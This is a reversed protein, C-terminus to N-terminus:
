CNVPGRAFGGGGAAKQGPLGGGRELSKCVGRLVYCKNQQHHCRASGGSLVM